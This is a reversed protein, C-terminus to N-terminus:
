GLRDKDFELANNDYSTESSQFHYCNCILINICRSSEVKSRAEKKKENHINQRDLRISRAEHDESKEPSKMIMSTENKHFPGSYRYDTFGTRLGDKKRDGKESWGEERQKTTQSMM